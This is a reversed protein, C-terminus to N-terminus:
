PHMARGAIEEYADIWHKWGQQITHQTAVKKAKAGMETRLDQDHILRSIALSWENETRVLFGTEGDKVFERYPEIDSAVVPIGLAAYELAKIPTRCLNFPTERLPIVGIDGDIAKYYEWVDPQWNTWTGRDKFIPRYDAGLMHWEVDETALIENVPERLLELDQLHNAGGAWCITLKDNHPREIKLVDQHIFNPIVKINDNYPRYVEALKETSVTVLDARRLNARVTEQIEDDMLNPLASSDPSLLNDDVEYVLKTLGKWVRWLQTALKGAPRQQAIVDFAEVQDLDPCFSHEGVPPIVIRHTSYLEMARFPQWFRYYGCGDPAAPRGLIRLPEGMPTIGKPNLVRLSETLAEVPRQYRLPRQAKVFVGNFEPDDMLVQLQYGLMDFIEYMSEQNYRWRDPPHHYAFGISRTTLVIIGGPKLVTLMNAISAAWDDTHELMETSIVMDFSNEGFHEVLECADLVQDVGPGDVIDVGIYEKPNRAMVMPRVSGNVDLSGVELVRKGEVDKYQVAGYAFFGLVSGHM